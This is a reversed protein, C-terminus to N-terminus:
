PEDPPDTGLKGSRRRAPGPRSPGPRQNPFPQLDIPPRDDSDYSLASLCATSFPRHRRHDDAHCNLRHRAKQEPTSAATSLAAEPPRRFQPVRQRSHGPIRDTVLAHAPGSHPSVLVAVRVTRPAVTQAISPTDLDAKQASMIPSVYVSGFVHPLGRSSRRTDQQHLQEADTSNRRVSRDVYVPVRVTWRPDGRLGSLCSPRANLRSWTSSTMSHAASSIWDSSFRALTGPKNGSATPSPPSSLTMSVINALKFTDCYSTTSDKYRNRRSLRSTRYKEFDNRGCPRVFESDVPDLIVNLGQGRHGPRGRRPDAFYAKHSHLPRQRRHVAHPTM